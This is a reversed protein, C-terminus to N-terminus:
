STLKQILATAKLHANHFGALMEDIKDTNGKEYYHKHDDAFLTAANDLEQLAELLEPAAALTKKDKLTASKGFSLVITKGTGDQIQNFEPDYKFVKM